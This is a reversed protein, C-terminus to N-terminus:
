GTRATCPEGARAPISGGRAIDPKVAPPNGRERPSLGPRGGTYARGAGSEGARAPISGILTYFIKLNGRNGRERPSLGSLEPPGATRMHTGGSARPYVRSPGPQSSQAPPEGARAPISRRQELPRQALLRNGRERPSLGQDGPRLRHVCLTGGSARPYVTGIAIARSPRPPEGARAPISRRRAGRAPRLAPNGRERPSLGERTARGSRVEVTGGSARPYVTPVRRSRGAVGPEGARAPISRGSMLLNDLQPQNGRERPSLGCASM